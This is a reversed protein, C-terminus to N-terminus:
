RLAELAEDDDDGFPVDFAPSPAPEEEDDLEASAALAQDVEDPDDDAAAPAFADLPPRTTAPMPAPSDPWGVPADDGSELLDVGQRTLRVAEVVELASSVEFRDAILTQLATQPRTAEVMVRAGGHKDTILYTPM